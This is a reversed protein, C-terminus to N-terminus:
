TLLFGKFINYLGTHRINFLGMEEIAKQMYEFTKESYDPGSADFAMIITLEAQSLEGLSYVKLLQSYAEETTIKLLSFRSFLKAIDWLIGYKILRGQKKETLYFTRAYALHAYTYKVTNFADIPISSLARVCALLFEENTEFSESFEEINKAVHIHNLTYM